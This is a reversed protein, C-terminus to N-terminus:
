KSIKILYINKNLFNTEGKIWFSTLCEQFIYQEFKIILFSFVFLKKVLLHILKNQQAKFMYLLDILKKQQAKFVYNSTTKDLSLINNYVFKQKNTWKLIVKFFDLHFLVLESVM